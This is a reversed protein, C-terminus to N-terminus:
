HRVRRRQRARPSATLQHLRRRPTSPLSRVSALADRRAPRGRVVRSRRASAAPTLPRTGCPERRRQLASGPPRSFAHCRPQAPRRAGRPAAVAPQFRHRARVVQQSARLGGGVGEGAAATTRPPPSWAARAAMSSWGGHVPLSRPAWAPAPGGHRNANATASTTSAASAVAVAAAGVAMREITRRAGRSPPARRQGREHM